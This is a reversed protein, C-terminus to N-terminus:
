FYEHITRDKRRRVRSVKLAPGGARRVEFDAVAQPSIRWRPRRAGDGVNIAQLEGRKIWGIVRHVDCRYQRAIEPPTFWDVIASM